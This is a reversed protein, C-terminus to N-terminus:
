ETNQNYVLRDPESTQAAYQSLPPDDLLRKTIGKVANLSLILKESLLISYVNLGRRPLIHVKQINSVALRFNRQFDGSDVFLVSKWKKAELIPIIDKTKHSNVHLNDVIHLDGQAFKVSLAVKLGLKRV